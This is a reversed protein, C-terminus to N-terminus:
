DVDRDAEPTMNLPTLPEDLGPLPNMNERQRAENRTMWGNTIASAYSETRAKLDGKAFSDRHFEVYMSASPVLRQEVAAETGTFEAHLTNRLYALEQHEINNFTSKTMHGIKHPPVGYVRCIEEVQFQRTSLVQADEPTMSLQMASMAEDLLLTHKGTNNRNAEIGESVRDYVDQKLGRPHTVVLDYGGSRRYNEGVYREGQKYLYAPNDLARLPNRGQYLDPGVAKIHLIDEPRYIVELNEDGGPCYKYRITTPANETDLKVHAPPLPILERPVGQGNRNIYAYANGNLYKWLHMLRWFDFYNQFNNPKKRLLSYLWHDTARDRNKDDTKRYTHLPTAAIDQSLVRACAYVASLNLAGDPTLHEFVSGTGADTLYRLLKASSDLTVSNKSELASVPAYVGEQLEYNM